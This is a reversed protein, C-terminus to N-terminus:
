QDIVATKDSISPSSIFLLNTLTLNPPLEKVVSDSNIKNISRKHNLGKFVMMSADNRASQLCPCGRTATVAM